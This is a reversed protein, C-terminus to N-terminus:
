SGPLWYEALLRWIFVYFEWSRSCWAQRSAETSGGQHYQVLGRFRYALGLSIDKILTAKTMTDTWLLLVRLCLRHVQRNKCPQTSIYTFISRQLWWLYPTFPLGTVALIGPYSLLSHLWQSFCGQPLFPELPWGVGLNWLALGWFGM